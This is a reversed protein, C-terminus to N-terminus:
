HRRCGLLRLNNHQQQVSPFIYVYTDSREKPISELITYPNTYGGFVLMAPQKEVLTSETQCSRDERHTINDEVEYEQGNSEDPNHNAAKRTHWIAVFIAIVTALLGLVLYLVLLQIYIDLFRDMLEEMFPKVPQPRDPRPSKFNLVQTRTFICGNISCIFDTFKDEDEDAKRFAIDDPQWYTHWYFNPLGGVEQRPGPVFELLPLSFQLAPCVAPCIPYSSSSTTASGSSAGHQRDMPLQPVDPASQVSCFANDPVPMPIDVPRAAAPCFDARPQQTSLVDLSTELVSYDENTASADHAMPLAALFLICFIGLRDM